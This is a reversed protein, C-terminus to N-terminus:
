LFIERSLGSILFPKKIGPVTMCYSETCGVPRIEIEYSESRQERQDGSGVVGLQINCTDSGRLRNFRAFKNRILSSNSGGDLFCNARSWSGNGTKVEVIIHPSYDRSKM